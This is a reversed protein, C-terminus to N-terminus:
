TGLGGPLWAVAALLILFAKATTREAGRGHGHNVESRPSTSSGLAGSWSPRAGIRTVGVQGSWSGRHYVRSEDGPMGPPEAQHRRTRHSEDPVDTSVQAVFRVPRSRGGLPHHALCVHQRVPPRVLEKGGGDPRGTARGPLDSLLQRIDQPNGSLDIGLAVRDPCTMDIPARRIVDPGVEGMLPTRGDSCAELAALMAPKCVQARLQLELIRRRHDEGRGM